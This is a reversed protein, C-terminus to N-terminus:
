FQLFSTSEFWVLVEYGSNDNRLDWHVSSGGSFNASSSCEILCTCVFEHWFHCAAM